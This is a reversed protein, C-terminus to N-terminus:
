QGDGGEHLGQDEVNFSDRLQENTLYRNIEDEDPDFDSCSDSEKKKGGYLQEDIPGDGSGDFDTHTMGRSKAETCM